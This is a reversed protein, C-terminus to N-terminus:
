NPAWVWHIEADQNNAECTNTYIQSHSASWQQKWFLIRCLPWHPALIPLRKKQVEIWFQLPTAAKKQTEQQLSLWQL